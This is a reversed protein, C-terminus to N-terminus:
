RRRQRVHACDLEGCEPCRVAAIKEWAPELGLLSYGCAACFGRSARWARRMWLWERYVMPSLILLILGVGVAVLTQAQPSHRVDDHVLVELCLLTLGWAAAWAVLELWM